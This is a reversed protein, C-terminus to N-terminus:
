AARWARTGHRSHPSDSEWTLKWGLVILVGLALLLVGLAILVGRAGNHGYQAALWRVKPLRYVAAQDPAVASALTLVGLVIAVGGVFFDAYTTM